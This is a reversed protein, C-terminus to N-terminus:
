PQSSARLFYLGIAGDVVAALAIGATAWGRIGDGVPLLGAWTLAAMVLLAITSGLMAMGTARQASARRLSPASGPLM